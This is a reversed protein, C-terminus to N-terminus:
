TPPSPHPFCEVIGSIILKQLFVRLAPNKCVKFHNEIGSYFPGAVELVAGPVLSSSGSAECFARLLGRM